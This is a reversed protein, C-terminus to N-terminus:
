LGHKEWRRNLRAWKLRRALDGIRDHRAIVARRTSVGSTLDLRDALNECAQSQELSGLEDRLLTWALERAHRALSVYGIRSLRGPDRLRDACEDFFLQVADVRAFLDRVYHDDSSRMLSQQHVRYLGQVPGNVRGIDGHTALRLWWNYDEAWPLSTRYGGTAVVLDRRLMVEPQHIVNLGRRLVRAIWEEGRWVSWGSVVNPTEVPPDATFVLPRGYVLAVEPHAAMLAASRALSGPTLLDDADLKVVYQGTALSLAENATALHGANREHAVIQVRPDAAALSEAVIRSDDTSADDIIHVDVTVGDQDLASAVAGQLYRAYNYCPIVVSVTPKM